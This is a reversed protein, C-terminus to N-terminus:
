RTMVGRGPATGPCRCPYRLPCTHHHRNPYRSPSRWVEYARQRPIGVDRLEFAPRTTSAVPSYWRVTPPSTTTTQTTASEKAHPVRSRSNIRARQEGKEAHRLSRGTEGGQPSTQRGSGRFAVHPIGPQFTGLGGGSRRERPPRRESASTMDGDGPRPEVCCIAAEHKSSPLVGGGAACVHSRM